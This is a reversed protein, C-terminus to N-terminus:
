TTCASTSNNTGTPSTAQSRAEHRAHETPSNSFHLFPKAAKALPASNYHVLAVQEIAGPASTHLRRTKQCLQAQSRSAVWCRTCPAPSTRNPPHIHLCPRFFNIRSPNHNQLPQRHRTKCVRFMVRADAGSSHVVNGRATMEDQRHQQRLPLARTTRVMHGVATSACCLGGQHQCPNASFPPPRNGFGETINM